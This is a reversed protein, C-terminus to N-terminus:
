TTKSTTSTSSITTATTSKSAKSKVKNSKYIKGYEAYITELLGWIVEEDGALVEKVSWLHTPDINKRERLLTLVRNVNNYASATRTPKRDIGAITRGELKEVIEALKTGNRLGEMCNAVITNTDTTPLHSSEYMSIGLSEIWKIAKEHGSIRQLFTMNRLNDPEVIHVRRAGPSTQAPVENVIIKVSKQPQKLVSTNDPRLTSMNGHTMMTTSQNVGFASSVHMSMNSNMATTTSNNIHISNNNNTHTNGSNMKYMISSSPPSLSSSVNMNPKMVMSYDPGSGSTGGSGGGSGSGSGKYLYAGPPPMHQRQLLDRRSVSTVVCEPKVINELKLNTYQLPPTMSPQRKLLMKMVASQMNSSNFASVNHMSNNHHHFSQFSVSQNMSNEMGIRMDSLDLKGESILTSSYPDSSIRNPTSDNPRLCFRLLPTHLPRRVNIADHMHMQNWSLDHEKQRKVRTSILHSIDTKHVVSEQQQEWEQRQQQFSQPRFM